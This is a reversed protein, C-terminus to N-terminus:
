GDDVVQFRVSAPGRCEEAIDPYLEGLRKTSVKGGVPALRVAVKGDITGVTAGQDTLRAAIRDRAQEKIGKWHSEKAAAQKYAERWVALDDIATTETTNGGYSPTNLASCIWKSVTFVNSKLKDLPAPLASRRLYRASVSTVNSPTM